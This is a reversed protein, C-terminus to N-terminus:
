AGPNALFRLSRQANDNQKNRRSSLPPVSMNSKSPRIVRSKRLLKEKIKDIDLGWKSALNVIENANSNKLASKMLAYGRQADAKKKALEAKAREQQELALKREQEQIYLNRMHEDYLRAKERAEAQKQANLMIAQQVKEENKIQETIARKARARQNEAEREKIIDRHRMDSSEMALRKRDNIRKETVRIHYMAREHKEEERRRLEMTKANREDIFKKLNIETRASKSESIERKRQQIDEQQQRLADLREQAEKALRANLIERERREAARKEAFKREREEIEHRQAEAKIRKEEDAREAAQKAAELKRKREEEQREFEEKRREERIKQLREFKEMDERQKALRMENEEERRREKEEAKRMNEMLRKKEEIRKQKVEQKHREIEEMERQRQREDEENRIQELLVAAILNEAEKINRQRQKENREAELELFSKCSTTAAKSPSVASTSRSKAYAARQALLIEPPPVRQLRECERQVFSRVRDVRDNLQRRVQPILVPDHTYEFIEKDSPYFIDKESISLNSIAELTLPDTIRKTPDKPDYTMISNGKFERFVVDSGEESRQSYSMRSNNQRRPARVDNEKKLTEFRFETATAQDQNSTESEEADSESSKNRIAKRRRSTSPESPEKPKSAADENNHGSGSDNTDDVEYKKETDNNIKKPPASLINKINPLQPNENNANEQNNTESENNTKKSKKNDNNENDESDSYYYDFDKEKDDQKVQNAQEGQKDTTNLEESM